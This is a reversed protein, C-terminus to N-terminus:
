ARDLADLDELSLRHGTGERHTKLSREIQEMLSKNQLIYLTEQEREWDEASVIVFDQGGRRKVRLPVHDEVVEEVQERLHSRFEHVSIERM